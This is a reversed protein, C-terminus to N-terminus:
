RNLSSGPYKYMDKTRYRYDWPREENPDKWVGVGKKRARDEAAQLEGSMEGKVYQNFVYAAGAEVMATSLSDGNITVLCLSRNEMSKGTKDMPDTSIRVEVKKDKILQEITEKGYPGYKQGPDAPVKRPKATEPADIGTIRCDVKNGDVNGVLGDGDQVYTVQFTKPATWQGKREFPVEAVKKNTQFDKPTFHPLDPVVSSVQARGTSLDISQASSTYVKNGRSQQVVGEAVPVPATFGKQTSAQM